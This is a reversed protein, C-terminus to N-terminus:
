HGTFVNRGHASGSLHIELFTIGFSIGSFIYNGM